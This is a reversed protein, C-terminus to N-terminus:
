YSDSYVLWSMFTINRPRNKPKLVRNRWNKPPIQYFLQVISVSPRDSFNGWSLDTEIRGRNGGIKGSKNGLLFQLEKVGKPCNRPINRNIYKPYSPQYEKYTSGTNIKTAIKCSEIKQRRNVKVHLNHSMVMM